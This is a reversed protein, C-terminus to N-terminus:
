ADARLGTVACPYAILRQCRKPSKSTKVVENKTAPQAPIGFVSVGGVAAVVAARGLGSIPVYRIVLAIAWVPVLGIGALALVPWGLLEPRGISVFIVLLLVLLGLTDIGLALVRGHELRHM